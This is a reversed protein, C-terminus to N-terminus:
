LDELRECPRAHDIYVGGFTEAAYVAYAVAKRQCFSCVIYEVGAFIYRVSDTNKCFRTGCVDCGQHGCNYKM